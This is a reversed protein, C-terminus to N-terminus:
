RPQAGWPSREPEPTDAGATARASTRLWALWRSRSSEPSSSTMSRPMLRRPSRADAGSANVRVAFPRLDWSGSRIPAHADARWGNMRVAFRHVDGDVRRRRRAPVYGRRRLRRGFQMRRLHGARDSRRFRGYPVCRRVARRCPSPVIALGRGACHASSTPDRRLPIPTTRHDDRVPSPSGGLVGRMSARATERRSAM